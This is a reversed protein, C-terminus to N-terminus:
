WFPIDIISAKIIKKISKITNNLEQHTELYSKVEKMLTQIRVKNEPTLQTPNSGTTTRAPSGSQICASSSCGASCPIAMDRVIGFNDCYYETLTSSNACIDSKSYLVSTCGPSSGHVSGPIYQQNLGGGDDDVCENPGICAGDVCQGICPLMYTSVENNEMCFHEQVYATIGSGAPPTNSLCFDEVAITNTTGYSFGTTTGKQLRNIGGDSDTCTAPYVDYCSMGAFGTLSSQGNSSYNAVMQADQMNVLLDGNVDVCCTNTPVPVMSVFIQQILSYDASTILGDGNADGIKSSSTCSVTTAYSPNNVLLFFSFVLVGVIFFSSYKKM